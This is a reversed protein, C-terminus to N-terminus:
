EFTIYEDQLPPVVQLDDVVLLPYELQANEDYEIHLTGTLQLWENLVFSQAYPHICIMGIFSHPNHHCLYAQRGFVFGNEVFRDCGLFKGKITITKHNYKQPQLMLDIGFAGFQHDDLIIPNANIDYPLFGEKLESVTHNHHECIITCNMQVAKINNFCYDLSTSEEIHDLIVLHAHELYHYLEHVHDHMQHHFEQANLFTTVQEIEWDEKWPTQFLHNLLHCDTTEILVQTPHYREDWRHIDHELHHFDTFQECICHYQNLFDQSFSYDSIILTTQNDCFSTSTITNQIFQIRQSQHFGTFLYIHTHM